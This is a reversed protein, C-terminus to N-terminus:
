NQLEALLLKLFDDKGLTVAELTSATKEATDTTGNTTNQSSSTDPITYLYSSAIASSTLM